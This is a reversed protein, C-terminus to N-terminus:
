VGTRLWIAPIRSTAVISASGFPNPAAGYVHAAELRYAEHGLGFGQMGWFRAMETKNHPFAAIAATADSEACLSLWYIENATLSASITLEGFGDDPIEIEGADVVLASALDGTGPGHISLRAMTGNGVAGQIGIRNWTKTESPIFPVAIILGNIADTTFSDSAAGEVGFPLYYRADRIPLQLPLGGGSAATITVSDAAKDTTITVGSGAVLTLTDGEQDAVVNDQGSVAITTFSDGGGAGASAPDGNMDILIARGM